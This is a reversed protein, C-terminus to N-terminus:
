KFVYFEKSTDCFIKFSELWTCIYRDNQPKVFVIDVNKFMTYAILGEM